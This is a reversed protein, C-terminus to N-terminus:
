VQRSTREERQLRTSISALLVCHDSNGIPSMAEVHVRDGFDSLVLDLPNNGRTAMEVHQHLGHAACLEELYEGARTTKSSGIWSENHVNFDGALVINSGHSRAHDLCADLHELLSTDHGPASGPRYLAGVVLKKRGHLNIALWLLEHNCCNITSLHEYSLEEKVWVAVGGGQATRDLRLPPHYGAISTEAVSMKDSTLKTETVIAIDAKSKCLTHQFEAFKSCLGFANTILVRMHSTQMSTCNHHKRTFTAQQPSPRPKPTAPASSGRINSTMARPWSLGNSPSAMKLTQRKM